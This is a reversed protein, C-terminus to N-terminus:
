DPRRAPPSESAAGLKRNLIRHARRAILWVAAGLAVLGVGYLAWEYPSRIHGALARHGLSGLYVLLFSGPFVSIATSWFYDRFRVRTLGFLYNLVFFPSGPALRSLVIIKWGEESVAQELALLWPRRAIRQQIWHRGWHRSIGFAASAGLMAGVWVYLAGWAAGFLFGGALSMLATPLCLVTNAVFLGMFALPAARGLRALFAALRDTFSDSPATEPPRPSDTAAALWPLSQPSVALRAGHFSETGLATGVVRSGPFGSRPLDLGLTPQLALAPRRIVPSGGGGCAVGVQLWLIGITICTSGHLMPRLFDPRGHRM